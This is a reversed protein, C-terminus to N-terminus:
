VDEDGAPPILVCRCRPHDLPRPGILHAPVGFARAIQDESVKRLEVFPSDFPILGRVEDGDIFLGTMEQRDNRRRNTTM